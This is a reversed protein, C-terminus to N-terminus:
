TNNMKNNTHLTIVSHINKSNNTYIKKLKLPTPSPNYGGVEGGSQIHWQM